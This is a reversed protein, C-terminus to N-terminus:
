HSQAGEQNGWTSPEPDVAEQARYKEAFVLAVAELTAREVDSLPGLERLMVDLQQLRLQGTPTLEFDFKNGYVVSHDSWGAAVFKECLSRLADQDPVVNDM